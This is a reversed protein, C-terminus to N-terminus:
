VANLWYFLWFVWFLLLYGLLLLLCYAAFWCCTLCIFDDILGMSLLWFLISCCVILVVLSCLCFWGILDSCAFLM